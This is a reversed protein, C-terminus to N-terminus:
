GFVLQGSKNMKQEIRKTNQATAKTHQATQRAVSDGQLGAVGFANFTGRSALAPTIAEILEAGTPITGLEPRAPSSGSPEEPPNAREAAEKRLDALEQKAKRLADRANELRAERDAEVAGIQDRLAQERERRRADFEGQRKIERQERDAALNKSAQAAEGDSLEVGLVLKDVGLDNSLTTIYQAISTQARDLITEAANAIRDFAGAVTSEIVLFAGALDSTWNVWIARIESTLSLFVGKLGTLAIKGALQLEGASLADSVGQFTENAIDKIESFKSAFYGVVDDTVGSFHVLAASVGAIAGVLLGAPSIVALFASSLLGLGTALGGVALGLAGFALGVTVLATGLGIVGLITAAIGTVLGQNNSVIKTMAGAVSTLATALTKVLPTIAEGVSISVGEVASLLQRFAGGIGANMEEATRVAQGASSRITDVLGDFAEGSSALKLAAAQGRGFLTEFIALKEASGLGATAKALDNIILALPRLNGASDVAEVGLKALEAQTAGTSLNKYARALANGALSGKIGNNALVAIAAATEEMSEGAEAAIPALPKFAEFLDELTQASSNATATLVDAVRGADESQLGFGRLAAGAIEAARPLESGTAAALALVSETSDIIAKTDFGARGLEGMAEAVQSASFSTTRGLRKAEDTLAAFQEATAGTVARVTRMRDDFSSFVKIAAAFPAAAGIGTLTLNQGVRRASAGFALLRKEAARLGQTLRDRVAVEVYARGARIGNGLAM